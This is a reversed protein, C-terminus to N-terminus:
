ASFSRPTRLLLSSVTFSSCDTIGLAGHWIAASLPMGTDKGAHFCEAWDLHISLHHTLNVHSCRHARTIVDDTNCSCVSCTVEWSKCRAKVIIWRSERRRDCVGRGGCERWEDDCNDRVADSSVFTFMELGAERNRGEADDGREGGGRVWSLSQRSTTRCREGTHACVSCASERRLLFIATTTELVRPSCLLQCSQM